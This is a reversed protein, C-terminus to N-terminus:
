PAPAAIESIDAVRLFLDEIAQLLAIRNRRVAVDDAMVFVKSFFADVEPRLGALVVLAPLWAGRAMLPEAEDGARRVREWLAREAPDLLRSTDVTGRPHGKVINRVRKFAVSLAAFDEPRERRAERLARARALVGPLREWSAGVVAAVEDPAFYAGPGALPVGEALVFRLRGELFPLLEKKAAGADFDRTGGHLACAEDVLTTVAVDVPAELLTRVLGQAARRLGFPDKSGTPVLGVGFCGVLTDVKDVVSLLAGAAGRPVPDSFTQPLYHEEVALCVGEPEGQLRLYIGGMVGQLETFEKVIDTTQDAKCLRVARVLDATASAGARALAAIRAALVEMREVKQLYTGLKEHFLVRALSDVRDRLPTKLDHAHFFRADELRAVLVGANNAAITGEPDDQNAVHLFAPRLRGDAGTLAFFKQHVRMATSLVVDPLELFREPFTAAVVVPWEVLDCTADVLDPDQLLTAGLARARAQLGKEILERREARHAVVGAARLEELYTAPSTITVPGASRTRHGRSTRGARVGFIEVPIVEQGALAVVWHVPRVWTRTGDGWRMNKPWPM